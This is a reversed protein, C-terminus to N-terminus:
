PGPTLFDVVQDITLPMGLSIASAILPAILSQKM